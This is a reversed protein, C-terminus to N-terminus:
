LWICGSVSRTEFFRWNCNAMLWSLSAIGRIIETIARIDCSMSVTWSAADVGNVMSPITCIIVSPVIVFSVSMTWTRWTVLSKGARIWSRWAFVGSIVPNVTETM